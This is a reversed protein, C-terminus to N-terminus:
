GPPLPSFVLPNSQPPLPLNKLACGGRLLDEVFRLWLDIHGQVKDLQLKVKEEHYMDANLAESEWCTSACSVADVWYAYNMIEQEANSFVTDAGYASEFESIFQCCDADGGQPDCVRLKIADVWGRLRDLYEKRGKVWRRDLDIRSERLQKWEACTISM